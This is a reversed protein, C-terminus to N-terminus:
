RSFNIDWWMYQISFAVVDVPVGTVFMVVVADEDVVVAVNVTTGAAQLTILMCM